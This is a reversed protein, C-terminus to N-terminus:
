VNLYIWDFIYDIDAEDLPYNITRIARRSYNQKQYNGETQSDDTIDESVILELGANAIDELYNRVQSIIYKIQNENLNNYILLLAPKESIFYTSAFVLNANIKILDDLVDSIDKNLYLKFLNMSFGENMINYAYEKIFRLLSDNIITLSSYNKLLDDNVYLIKHQSFKEYDKEEYQYIEKILTSISEHTYPYDIFRDAGMQISRIKQHAPTHISGTFIIKVFPLQKRVSALAKWGDIVETWAPIFIVSYKKDIPLTFLEDIKTYYVVQLKHKFISLLMSEYVKAETPVVLQKCENLIYFNTNRAVPPTIKYESDLSFAIAIKDRLNKGKEITLQYNDNKRPGSFKILANAYSQCMLKDKESLSTIDIVVSSDKKSTFDIILSFLTSNLSINTESLLLEINEILIISAGLTEIYIKLDNVVKYLDTSNHILQNLYSPIELITLNDYQNLDIIKKRVIENEKALSLSTLYLCSDGLSLHYSLLHYFFSFRINTGSESFLYVSQDPLDSLYGDVFNLGFRLAKM